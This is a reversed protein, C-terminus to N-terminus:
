EFINNQIDIAKHLFTVDNMMQNTRSDTGSQNRQVDNHFEQIMLDFHDCLAGFYLCCCLFYSLTSTLCTSYVIPIQLNFIWLLYWGGLSSTEFPVVLDFPLLWTSTDVNGIAISYFSSLLSVMSVSNNYCLYYIIKWMLEHCKNEVNRYIM